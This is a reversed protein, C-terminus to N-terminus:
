DPVSDLDFPEGEGQTRATLDLIEEDRELVTMRLSDVKKKLAEIEAQAQALADSAGQAQAGDGAAELERRLAAIETNKDRLNVKLTQVMDAQDQAKLLLTNRQHGEMALQLKAELAENQGRLQALQAQLAERDAQSTTADLAAALKQDLQKREAAATNLRAKLAAIEEGLAASREAEAAAAEALRAKLFAVENELQAQKGAGDGHTALQAELAEAKAQAQSLQASLLFVEADHKTAVEDARQTADAREKELREANIMAETLASKLLSVEEALAGDGDTQAAALAQGRAEAAELAATTEALRAELAQARREIEVVRDALDAAQEASERRLRLANELEQRLGDTEAGQVAAAGSAEALEGRLQVAAAEAAQLSERLTALEHELSAAKATLAPDPGGPAAEREALAARLAAAEAAHRESAAASEKASREASERVQLAQTVEARARALEAALPRLREIEAAKERLEAQQSAATREAAMLKARMQGLETQSAAGRQVGQLESQLRARQAGSEALETKLATIEAQLAHLRSGGQEVSTQQQQKLWDITGASEELAYKLAGVEEHLAAAQKEAINKANQLSVAFSHADQLDRSLQEIVSDIVDGGAKAALDQLRTAYRRKLAVLEADLESARTEAMKLASERASHERWAEQTAQALKNKLATAEDTSKTLAANLSLVELQLEEAEQSVDSAEPAAAAVLPSGRWEGGGERLLVGRYYLEGVARATTIWDAPSTRVFSELTAPAAFARAVEALALPLLDLDGSRRPNLKLITPAALRETFLRWFDVGTLLEDVCAGLDADLGPKLAAEICTFEGAPRCLVERLVERGTRTGERAHIFRLGETALFVTEGGAGFKFLLSRGPAARDAVAKVIEEDRGNEVAYTSALQHQQNRNAISYIKQLSRLRASLERPDVPKAVFEDAGADFVASPEGDSHPSTVLMVPVFLDGTRAKMAACLEGGSLGGLDADIIVMQPLHEEFALLASEADHATLVRFGESELQPIWRGPASPEPDVVLVSFM